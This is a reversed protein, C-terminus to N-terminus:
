EKEASTTTQQKVMNELFGLFLELDERTLRRAEELIRRDLEDFDKTDM